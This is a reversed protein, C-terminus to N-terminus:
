GVGDCRVPHVLWGPHPRYLYPSTSPSSFLGAAAFGCLVVPVPELQLIGTRKTAATDGRHSCPAAVRGGFRGVAM